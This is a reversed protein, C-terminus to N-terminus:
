CPFGLTPVAGICRETLAAASVSGVFVKVAFSSCLAGPGRGGGALNSRVVVSSTALPDASWWRGSTGFNCM